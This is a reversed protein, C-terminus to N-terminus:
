HCGLKSRTCYHILRDNHSM